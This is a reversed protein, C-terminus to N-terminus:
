TEFLRSALFKPIGAHAPQNRVGQHDVRDDDDDDANGHEYHHTNRKVIANGVM